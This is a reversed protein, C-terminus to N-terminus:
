RLKTGCTRCFTDGPGAKKGCQHCFVADGPASAPSAAQRSAHRRSGPRDASPEQAMVGTRWYWFSGAAILLLGAGGILWPLLQDPTVRGATSSNVPQNPQAPQFETPNTLTDDPKTYSIDLEVSDGADVQGGQWPDYTMGDNAPRGTAASGDINIVSANIPQQVVVSLNQVPYDSQWRFTFDRQSGSKTLTPDYYEIRLNPGLARFKIEIWDGAASMDYDLDYLSQDPGQWAVAYPEGAAAPIRLSIDAPLSVTSALTVHYIVLAAPQDYEPWIDVLVSDLVIQQQAHTTRAPLLAAALLLSLFFFAINHLTSRIKM